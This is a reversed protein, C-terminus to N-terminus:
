MYSKCFYFIFPKNNQLIFHATNILYVCTVHCTVHYAEQALSIDIDIFVFQKLVMGDATSIISVGNFVRRMMERCHRLCSPAAQLRTCVSKTKAHLIESPARSM